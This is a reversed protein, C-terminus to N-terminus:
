LDTPARGRNGGSPSAAPPLAASENGWASLFVVAVGFCIAVGAVPNVLMVPVSLLCLLPSVTFLWSRARPAGGFRGGWIRTGAVALVALALAGGTGGVLFYDLAREASHEFTGGYKAANMSADITVWLSATWASPVHAWGVFGGAVYGLPVAASALILARRLSWRAGATVAMEVLPLVLGASILGFVFHPLALRASILVVAALTCCAAAALWTRSPTWMRMGGSLLNVLIVVVCAAYGRCLLLAGKVGHVDSTRAEHQLDAIAPEIRYRVTNPDLLRRAVRHLWSGPLPTADHRGSM